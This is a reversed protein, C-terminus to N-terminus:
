AKRLLVEEFERERLGRTAAVTGSGRIGVLAAFLLLNVFMSACLALFLLIIVCGSKKM